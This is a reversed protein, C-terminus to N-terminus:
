KVFRNASFHAATHALRYLDEFVLAMRGFDNRYVQSPVPSKFLAVDYGLGRGLPLGVLVCAPAGAQTYTDLEVRQLESVDLFRGRVCTPVQKFEAWVTMGNITLSMDLIGSTAYDAHKRAVFTSGPHVFNLWGRFKDLFWTRFKNEPKM